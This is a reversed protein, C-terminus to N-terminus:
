VLRAQTLGLIRKKGLDFESFHTSGFGVQMEASPKDKYMQDFGVQTETSPKDKCMQDFGVQTEASPKDKYM